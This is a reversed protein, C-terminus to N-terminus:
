IRSHELPRERHMLAWEVHEALAAEGLLRLIDRQEAPDTTRDLAKRASGFLQEMYRYQKILERDAKRYAYAERVAAVISFVGMVVVLWNKADANLQRAFIALALAIAIGVLLSANGLM